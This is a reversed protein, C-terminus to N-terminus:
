FGMFVAIGKMMQALPLKNKQKTTNHSNKSTKQINLNCHRLSELDGLSSIKLLFM